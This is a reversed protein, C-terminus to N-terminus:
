RPVSPVTSVQNFLTVTAPRVTLAPTVLGLAACHCLLVIFGLTVAILKPQSDYPPSVFVKQYSSMTTLEVRTPHQNPSRQLVNVHSKLVVYRLSIAKVDRDTPKAKELKQINAEHKEKLAVLWDKQYNVVDEQYLDTEKQKDEDTATAPIKWGKKKALKKLEDNLKKHETELTKALELIPRRTAKDQAQMMLAIGGYMSQILETVLKSDESEETFLHPNCSSTKILQSKTGSSEGKTSAGLLLSLSISTILLAKM